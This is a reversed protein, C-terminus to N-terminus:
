QTNVTANFLARHVNVVTIRRRMAQVQEETADQPVWRDFTSNHTFIKRTGPPILVHSHKIDIGRPEESDLLHIVATPPWHKVEFDDFIVGKTFDCDRLQDRHSIVTAEPLLSRAWATKGCGTPGNVFLCQWNDLIIPTNTFQESPRAPRPVRMAKNRETTFARFVTDYKTLLEFACNEELFKMADSVGKERALSLASRCVEERKRKRNEMPPDGEVLPTTDEKLCYNWHNFVFKDLADPSQGTQANINPHEGALDFYKTLCDKQHEYHVLAHVHRGGDQHTEEVTILRKIRGTGKLFEFVDAKHLRTQSYTLFFARSRLRRRSMNVRGAADRVGPGALPGALGPSLGASNGPRPELHEDSRTVVAGQGAVVGSSVCRQSPTWEGSQSIPAIEQFSRPLAWLGPFLAPAEEGETGGSRELGSAGTGGGDSSELVDSSESPWYEAPQDPDSFDDMYEEFMEDSPRGGTDEVDSYPM